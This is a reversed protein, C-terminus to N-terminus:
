RMPGLFAENIKFIENEFKDYVVDAQASETFDREPSRLMVNSMLSWSQIPYHSPATLYGSM